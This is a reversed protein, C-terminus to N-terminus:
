SLNTVGHRFSDGNGAGVSLGHETQRTLATAQRQPRIPQLPQRQDCLVSIHRADHVIRLKRRCLKGFQEQRKRSFTRVLRQAAEDAEQCFVLPQGDQRADPFEVLLQPTSVFADPVRLNGAGKCQIFLLEVIQRALKFRVEAATQPGMDLDIRRQDTTDPDRNAVLKEIERHAAFEFGHGRRQLVLLFVLSFHFM